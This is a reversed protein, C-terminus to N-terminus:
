NDGEMWLKSLLEIKNLCTSANVLAHKAADYNGADFAGELRQLDARLMREYAKRSKKMTKLDTM